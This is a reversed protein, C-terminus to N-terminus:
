NKKMLDTIENETIEM